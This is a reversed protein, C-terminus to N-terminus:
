QKCCLYEDSKDENEENEFSDRETVNIDDLGLTQRMMFELSKENIEGRRYRVSHGGKGIDRDTTSVLNTLDRLNDILSYDSM